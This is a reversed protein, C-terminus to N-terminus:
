EGSSINSLKTLIHLKKPSPRRKRGAKREYNRRAGITRSELPALVHTDGSTHRGGGGRPCRVTERERVGAPVRGTSAQTGSHSRRHGRGASSRKCSRSSVSVQKCLGASGTAPAPQRLGQCCKVHDSQLIKALRKATSHDRM